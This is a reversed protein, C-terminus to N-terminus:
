GTPAFRASTCKSWHWSAAVGDFVAEVVPSAGRRHARLEDTMSAAAPSRRGERGGPTEPDHTALAAKAALQCQDFHVEALNAGVRNLAGANMSLSTMGLGVLVAALHPDAAAEGCV